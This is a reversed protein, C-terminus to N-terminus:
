QSAGPQRLRQLADLAPTIDPMETKLKVTKLTKLQALVARVAEDGTDFYQKLWSQAREISARFNAGDRELAALRAADLELTLNRYLFYRQRPALLPTIPGNHHRVTVLESFARALGQGIRQWWTAPAPPPQAPATQATGPLRKLPLSDVKAALSALQQALAGTHARSASNLQALAAAVRDRVAQVGPRNLTALEADAATLAAITTAPDHVIRAQHRAIRLLYAADDLRAQARGGGLRQRIQVLAHEYADLRRGLSKDASGDRQAVRELDAHTAARDALAALQKKLAAITAAQRDVAQTAAAAIDATRALARQQRWVYASGALALLAILIALLAVITALPSRRPAPKAPRKKKDSDPTPSTESM